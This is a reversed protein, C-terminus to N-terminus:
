DAAKKYIQGCLLFFLLVLPHVFGSTPNAQNLGGVHGGGRIRNSKVSLVWKYEDWTLLLRATGSIFSLLKLSSM